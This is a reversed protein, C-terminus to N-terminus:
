LLSLQAKTLWFLPTSGKAKQILTSAPNHMSAHDKEPGRASLRTVIQMRESQHRQSTDNDFVTARFM